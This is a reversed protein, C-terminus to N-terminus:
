DRERQKGRAEIRETERATGDRERGSVQPTFAFYTSMPANIFLLHCLLECMATLFSFTICLCCQRTVPIREKRVLSYSKERLSGATVSPPLFGKSFLDLARYLGEGTTPRTLIRRHATGATRDEGGRQENRKKKKKKNMMIM